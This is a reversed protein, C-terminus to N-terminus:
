LGLTKLYDRSMKAADLPDRDVSVDQEVIVYEVGAEEAAELIAPIDQIGSGEPM